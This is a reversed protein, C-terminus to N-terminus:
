KMFNFELIIGKHPSDKLINDDLFTTTKFTSIQKLNSSIFIHDICNEIKETARYIDLDDTFNLLEPKSNIKSLYRKESEFFSTNFDGVIFANENEKLINRIDAKFNDLEIRAIEKQYKIGWTGIITGYIYFQKGEITFKHCVSTYKDITEIEQISQYKSYISTRVPTSGKLYIGYDLHQFEEKTPLSKSHYRFYHEDFGFSDINENVVLFDLDLKKIERQIIKQLDKSKKFWDINLTAIKM